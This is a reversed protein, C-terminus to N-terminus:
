PGFRTVNGDEDMELGPAWAVEWRNGEPDALYGSRPGYERDVPAEVPTMGREVMEHWLPDVEGKGPVNISLTVGRWAGIDSADVEPAAEAGLADLGYLALVTGNLLFSAFDGPIDGGIPWGMGVYFDRMKKHDRVGLTVFSLRAPITM